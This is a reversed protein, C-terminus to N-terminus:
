RFKSLRDHKALEGVVVVQSRHTSRTSQISVLQKLNDLKHINENCFQCDLLDTFGISQSQTYSVTPNTYV